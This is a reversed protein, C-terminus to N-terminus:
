AEAARITLALFADALDFGARAINRYTSAATEDDTHDLAPEAVPSSMIATAFRLAIEQRLTLAMCATGKSSAM